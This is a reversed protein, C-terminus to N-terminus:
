YGAHGPYPCRVAGTAPDYVYNQGSVPCKLYGPALGLNNLSKPNGETTSMAKENQIATRVQNLRQRCDEGKAKDMAKGYTTQKSSHQDVLSSDKKVTSMNGGTFMMAAVIFVIAVALLMGILTWNGKNTIKM